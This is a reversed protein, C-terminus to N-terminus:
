GFLYIEAFDKDATTKIKYKLACEFSITALKDNNAIAEMLANEILWTDVKNLTNTAGRNSKFNIKPFPTTERGTITYAIEGSSLMRSM